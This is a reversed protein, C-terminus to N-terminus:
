EAELQKRRVELLERNAEWLEQKMVGREQKTAVVEHSTVKLVRSMNSIRTDVTYLTNLIKASLLEGKPSRWM